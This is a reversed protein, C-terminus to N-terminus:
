VRSTTPLTLHTYSVPSFHNLNVPPYLCHIKEKEIQYFDRIEHSMQESHAVVLRANRYLAKELNVQVNDWFGKKRQIANLYGIHTGGCIAIDACGIRSTSLLLNIKYHKKLKELQKAFWYDRCKSPLWSVNVKVPKIWQYHPLNKDFNRSFVTPKLGLQSFAEVLDLVYREMGGSRKFSQCAIGIQLSKLEQIQM